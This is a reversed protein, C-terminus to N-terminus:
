QKGLLDELDKAGNAGSRLRAAKLKTAKELVLEVWERPMSLFEPLSFHYNSLDLDFFQNIRSYLLSSEFNEETELTM